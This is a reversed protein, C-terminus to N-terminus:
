DADAYLADWVRAKLPNLWAASTLSWWFREHQRYFPRQLARRERQAAGRHAPTTSFGGHQFNALLLDVRQVPLQVQWLIRWLLEQDAAIPQALTAPLPLARFGGLQLATRRQVLWAQHCLNRNFLTRRTLHAPAVMRQQQPQRMVDGYVLAAQPDIQESLRRLVQRDAFTDGANLFYVYDGRCTLLAQNMAHYIGCDPQALVTVGFARLLAPVGDRSGGDKVIYEVDAADQALVSQATRLAAPGADRIVSVVSIRM